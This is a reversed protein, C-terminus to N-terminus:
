SCVHREMDSMQLGPMLTEFLFPGEARLGQFNLLARQFVLTQAQFVRLFEPYLNIRQLDFINLCGCQDLNCAKLNLNNGKPMYVNTLPGKLTLVM